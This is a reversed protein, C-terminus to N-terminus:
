KIVELIMDLIYQPLTEQKMAFIAFTEAFFERPNKTGYVSIKYIDGSTKAKNYVDDIMMCKDYLPNGYRYEFNRNAARGNIQGIRQDAIIHGYEHAITTEIELGKYCVNGRKYKVYDTFQALKKETERIQKKYYGIYAPDTTNAILTELNKKQETYHKVGGSMRQAWEDPQLVSKGFEKVKKNISLTEFNASAGTSKSMRGSFAITDLKNTKYSAQLAELEKTVTNVSMLDTDKPIAVYNAFTELERKATDITTANGLTNNFATATSPPTAPTGVIKSQAPAIGRPQKGTPTGIYERARDRAIGTQKTFDRAAAQWEGIKRRAKTSDTGAAEQTLAQRKYHRINREIGRLKQEGEYRTMKQGNYSVEEGVMEDLEKETYHEAIGEFYPYFSHKCNIGCIGTVSGLECVSFPRYKKNNGSRSFIQGQWEEHEPRAGIHASTEVLDCDLEECNNLTQNAATQNISTLINMRVASEITRTVPRGNEYHVATVGRKALEDAADKMATDYDFVGSQTMMYVRNAERVFQTQSTAATTLTLRSLDSHCKQITSLMAQANPASITRGTAEKFIRNDNRANTELAETFTDKVQRIIARDYKALIRGINKKLGGAEALMQAQWKTMDTIKGLRAIRRAMDQLIDTELQSYIEIIEDSLGDLYRPPLM